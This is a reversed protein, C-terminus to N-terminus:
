CHNIRKQENKTKKVIDYGNLKLSSIIGLTQDPVDGLSCAELSKDLADVIEKDFNFYTTRTKM